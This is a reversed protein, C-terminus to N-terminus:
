FAGYFPLMVRIVAIHTHLMNGDNHMVDRVDIWEVM